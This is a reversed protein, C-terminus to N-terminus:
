GEAVRGRSEKESGDVRGANWCSKLFYPSRASGRVIRRISRSIIVGSQRDHVRAHSTINVNREHSPSIRHLSSKPSALLNLM